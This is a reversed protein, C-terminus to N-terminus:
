AIGRRIAEIGGGSQKIRAATAAIRGLADANEQTAPLTKLFYKKSAIWVAAYVRWCHTRHPEHKLYVGPPLVLAPKTDHAVKGRPPPARRPEHATTQNLAFILADAFFYDPATTYPDLIM